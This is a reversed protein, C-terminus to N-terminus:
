PPPDDDVLVDLSASDLNDFQGSRVAWVFAWIAIGLLGVSIPVLVLLITMAAGPVAALREADGALVIGGDGAGGAVAPGPRRRRLAPRARQLRHGLRPEPARDPPQAAGARDGAARAGALR